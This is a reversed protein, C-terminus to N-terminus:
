DHVEFYAVRLKDDSLGADKLRPAHHGNKGSPSGVWNILPVSLVMFISNQSTNWWCRTHKSCNTPLSIIGNKCANFYVFTLV